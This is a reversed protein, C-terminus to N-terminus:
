REQVTAPLDDPLDRDASNAFRTTWRCSPNELVRAYYFASQEASFDPDSFTVQLESAGEKGTRECTKLNVDATTRRCKGSAGPLRGNSCVVDRVRQRKEGNEVWGKVIQIRDLPPGDPDQIAWVWFRPASSATLDSGMPVGRKYALAVPNDRAGVDEPLNGGFFRIRMRSGSTAFTERRKMADFIDARTNAEAWVGALGGPSLKIVPGMVPSKAGMVRDVAFGIGEAPKLLTPTGARTNGPDSTHTDTSGIVGLKYPNIGRETGLALGDLLANRLFSGESACRRDDEGECPPFINGVNCDEDAAGVSIQCESNGKQQTVEFLREIRARRELDESTYAAGEEDTRSFTLGWSFNTNHPITLVECPEECAADLQAFFDKQTRVDMSSIAHPIVDTGRFIVNRHLMGMETLLSSFEYGILATFRGPDDHANAVEQVRQWAAIANARCRKDDGCIDYQHPQPRVGAMDFAQKLMTAQDLDGSRIDRCLQLDFEPSDPSMTCPLIEFSEAHDTLAVFDLPVPLQAEIGTQLEVKEGKAFRYASNPGLRNGGAYADASWSTHVHLDGFLATRLPFREVEATVSKADATVAKVPPTSIHTQPVKDPDSCGTLWLVVCILGISRVFTSM